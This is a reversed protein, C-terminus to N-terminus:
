RGYDRRVSRLRSVFDAIGALRGLEYDTVLILVLQEHTTLAEWAEGSVTVFDPARRPASERGGRRVVFRPALRFRSAM